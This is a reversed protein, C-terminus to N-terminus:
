ENKQSEDGAAAGGKAALEAAAIEEPTEGGMLVNVAMSLTVAESANLRETFQTFASFNTVPNTDVGNLKRVSCAAYVKGLTAGDPFQEGLKKAFKMAIGDAMISETMTMERIVVTKGPSLEVEKSESIDAM